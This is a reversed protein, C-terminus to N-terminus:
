IKTQFSNVNLTFIKVTRRVSLIKIKLFPFPKYVTFKTNPLIIRLKSKPIATTLTQLRPRSLCRGNLEANSREFNSFHDYRQRKNVFSLRRTNKSQTCTKSQNM